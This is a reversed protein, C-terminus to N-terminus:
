EDAAAIAVTEPKGVAETVAAKRQHAAQLSRRKRAVEMEARATDLEASYLRIDAEGVTLADARGQEGTANLLRTCLSPLEQLPVNHQRAVCTDALVSFPVPAAGLPGIRHFWFTRLNDKQSFGLLKFHM